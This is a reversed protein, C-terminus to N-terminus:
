LLRSRSFFQMQQVKTSCLRKIEGQSTFAAAKSRKEREVTEARNLM